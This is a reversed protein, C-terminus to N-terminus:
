YIPSWSGSGDNSSPSNTINQLSTGDTDMVYLDWVGSRNSQFLIRTGDPSWEPYIDNGNDNRSINDEASGDANMLYIESTQGRNSNFAILLSNPSWAPAWDYTNPGTLGTSGGGNSDMKWIEGVNAVTRYSEFLLSDGTPSWCPWHDWAPHATLNYQQSGDPNMIYIEYNDGDRNRAFAIKDGNPSWAPRQDEYDPYNSINERGSGDSNMVYIEWDGDINSEYAIKSCDPSWSPFIDVGPGTELNRPHSGDAWMIFIDYDFDDGDRDSNFAIMGGPPWSVSFSWVPGETVMGTSDTAVVKWYYTRNYFLGSIEYATTDILTDYVAPVASTDFYIDYTIPDGDPDVCTWSLEIDLTDPPIADGDAPSPNSPVNPGAPAIVKELKSCAALMALISAALILKNLIPARMVIGGRLNKDKERM